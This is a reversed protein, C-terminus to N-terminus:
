GWYDPRKGSRRWYDHLGIRRLLADFSPEHWLGRMPPQFLPSTQRDQDGGEPALRAWQGEGFYYGNLLAFVTTKDGLAAVAHAMPHTLEPHIRVFQLSAAIAQSRPIKGTLAEATWTVVDVVGPILDRPHNTRDKLIM